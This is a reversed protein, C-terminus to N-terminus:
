SKVQSPSIGMYKKYTRSFYAISEFGCQEAVETVSQGQKLFAEANKCRVTNLFTLVSQGTYRKFERILHYKSIGCIGALDDLCINQAYNSSLYEIVTKVYEEAPANDQLANETPETHFEQLHVLLRLLAIRLKAGDLADETKQYQLFTETVQEHLSFCEADRFVPTFHLKDTHIGNEKCFSEDIILTYFHPLDEAYLRHLANANVVAMDGPHLAYERDGSQLICDKCIRIVEINQHWNYVCAKLKYFDIHHVPCLKDQLIDLHHEYSTFM